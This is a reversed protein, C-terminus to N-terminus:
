ASDNLPNRSAEISDSDGIASPMEDCGTHDLPEGLNGLFKPFTSATSSSPLQPFQSNLQTHCSDGYAVERLNMLFRCTFVAPQVM